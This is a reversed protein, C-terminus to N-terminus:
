WVGPLLRYRVRQAYAPYGALNAHLFRDEIVIRRFFLIAMLAAPLLALWSGLAPATSLMVLFSAAYGPHRVVAYPGRTILEHGRESQIRVVPSFFRNTRMAWLSLAYGAAVLTLAFIQVGLPVHSWGFRGADYGALVLIAAFFPMIIFRLRRDVGGPAPHMRERLLGRDMTTLGIAWFTLVVAFFAWFFPLNLRGAPAFLLVGTVTLIIASRLLAAITM